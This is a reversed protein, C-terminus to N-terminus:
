AFVRAGTDAGLGDAIDRSLVAAGGVELPLVTHEEGRYEEVGAIDGGWLCVSGWVGLVAAGDLKGGCQVVMGCGREGRVMVSEGCQRTGDGGTVGANKIEVGKVRKVFPSSSFM